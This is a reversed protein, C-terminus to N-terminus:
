ELFSVAIENQKKLDSILILRLKSIKNVNNVHNSEVSKGVNFRVSLDRNDSRGFVILNFIILSFVQLNMIEM